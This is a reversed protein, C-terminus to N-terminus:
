LRHRENGPKFELRSKLDELNTRLQANIEGNMLPEFLALFGGLQGGGRTTLLTGVDLSEFIFSVDLYLQGWTYEFSLSEDPECGTVKVLLEIRQGPIELTQRFTDGVKVPNRSTEQESEGLAPQVQAWNEIVAMFAFVEEVCREIKVSQDVKLIEGSGEFQKM